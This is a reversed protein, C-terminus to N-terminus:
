SLSHKLDQSCHSRHIGVTAKRLVVQVLQVVHGVSSCVPKCPDPVPTSCYKAATILTSSAGIMCQLSYKQTYALRYAALSPCPHAAGVAANSPQPTELGYLVNSLEAGRACIVCCLGRKQM